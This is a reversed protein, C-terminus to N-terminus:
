AYGSRSLELSENKLWAIAAGAHSPLVTVIESHVEAGKQLFGIRWRKGFGRHIVDIWRDGAVAGFLGGESMFTKFGESALLCLFENDEPPNRTSDGASWWQCNKPPHTMDSM